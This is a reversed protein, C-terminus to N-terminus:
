ILIVPSASQSCKVYGELVDRLMQLVMCSGLCALKAIETIFSAKVENCVRPAQGAVRNAHDLGM